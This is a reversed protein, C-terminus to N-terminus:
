IQLYQYNCLFKFYIYTGNKVEESIDVNEELDDKNSEIKKKNKKDKNIDDIENIKIKQKEKKIEPIEDEPPESRKSIKKNIFPNIFDEQNNHM